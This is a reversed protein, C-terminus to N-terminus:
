PTRLEHSVISVFDSKLRDMEKRKTIDLIVGLYGTTRQEEDRLPTVALLAPFRSGDRRIFSWENEDTGEIDVKRRFVDFGPEVTEGLEDSLVQARAAIESPDHWLAPNQKGVVEEATYGLANEAAENFVMVTGDIGTAVILYETSALIASKLTNSVHLAQAAAFAESTDRITGVFMRNGNFNMENVSLDMPFITGDKRMASVQRGIGIVKRDGTKLYNNLYSDHDEHYPSPM